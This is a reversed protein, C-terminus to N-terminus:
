SYTSWFALFDAVGRQRQANRKVLGVAKLEALGLGGVGAVDALLRAQGDVIDVLALAGDVVNLRGDGTVNIGGRRILADARDVAALVAGDGKGHGRLQLALILDLDDNGVLIGVAVRFLADKLRRDFGHGILRGVGAHVIGAHDVGLRRM